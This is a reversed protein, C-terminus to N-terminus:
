DHGQLARLVPGVERPHRQYDRNTDISRQFREMDLRLMRALESISNRDLNPARGFLLDHMEWFKGQDWAAFASLAADPSKESNGRIYPV